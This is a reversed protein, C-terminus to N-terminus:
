SRRCFHGRAKRIKWYKIPYILYMRGVVFNDNAGGQSWFWGVLSQLTPLSCCDYWTFWTFLLHYFNFHFFLYLVYLFYLSWCLAYLFFLVYLLLWLSPYLTFLTLFAFLFICLIMFFAYFLFVLTFFTCHYLAFQRRLCNLWSVSRVHALSSELPIRSVFIRHTLMFISKRGDQM